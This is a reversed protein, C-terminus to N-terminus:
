LFLRFVVCVLLMNVISAFVIVSVSAQSYRAKVRNDLLAFSGASASSILASLWPSIGLMVLATEVGAWIGVTAIAAVITGARGSMGEPVGFRRIM